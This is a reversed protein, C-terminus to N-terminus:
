IYLCLNYIYFYFYNEVLNFINKMSKNKFFNILFNKLLIIINIELYNVDM